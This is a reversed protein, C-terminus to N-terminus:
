IIIILSTIIESSSFPVLLSSRCGGVYTKIRIIWYNSLYKNKSTCYFKVIKLSCVIMFNRSDVKWEIHSFIYSYSNKGWPWSRTGRVLARCRRRYEGVPAGHQRSTICVAVVPLYSSVLFWLTHEDRIGNSNEFWLFKSERTKLCIQTVVPAIIFSAFNIIRTAFFITIGNILTNCRNSPILGNRWTVNHTKNLLTVWFSKWKKSRFWKPQINERSVLSRM